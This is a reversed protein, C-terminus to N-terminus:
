LFLNQTFPGYQQNNEGYGCDSRRLLMAARGGRMGRRCGMRGRRLMGGRRLMRTSVGALPGAPGLSHITSGAAGGASVASGAACTTSIASGASVRAVPSTLSGSVTATLRSAVSRSSRLTRITASGLSAIAASGLSAIAASGLRTITASGLIAVAASSLGTITPSGLTRITAYGLAPIAGSVRAVMRGSAGRGTGGPAASLHLRTGIALNAGDVGLTPHRDIASHM